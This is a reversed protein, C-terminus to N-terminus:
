KTEKAVLQQIETHVIKEVIDALNAQLWADISAKTAEVIMNELTSPTDDTLKKANAEVIAEKLSDISEKINDAVAVESENNHQPQQMGNVIDEVCDAIDQKHEQHESKVKHAAIELSIVKNAEEKPIINTLELINRNIKGDDGVLDRISTLVDDLSNDKNITKTAQM